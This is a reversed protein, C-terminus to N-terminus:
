DRRVSEAIRRITLAPVEGVVTVVLGDLHRRYTHLAGVASLGSSPPSGPHAREIFVSVAALGDSFVRQERLQRSFPSRRMGRSVLTFGEPLWTVRWAPFGEGAEELNQGHHWTLRKGKLFPEFLSADVHDLFAVSAFMLQEYVLGEADMVQSKLILGHDHDLWLRYGYRYSDKPTIGLIQTPRGAVRDRKELAFHYFPQLAEFRQALHRLVLRRPREELRLATEQPLICVMTEGDRIMEREPGTLAFFHERERGGETSRVWQMAELRDGQLYVFIGQYNLTDLAQDMRELWHRVGEAQLGLPFWLLCCLWVRNLTTAWSAYM